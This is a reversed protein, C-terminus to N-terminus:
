DLFDVEEEEVDFFRDLDVEEEDQFNFYIINKEEDYEVERINPMKIFLALFFEVDGLSLFRKGDKDVPELSMPTFYHWDISGDITWHVIAFTPIKGKLLNAMVKNRIIIGIEKRSKEDKLEFKM